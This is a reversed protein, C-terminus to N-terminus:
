IHILSLTVADITARHLMDYYDPSEYFSLDLRIAQRHVLDKVHDQVIESQATQVWSAISKLAAAVVFVTAIAALYFLMNSFSEPDSSDSTAASLSDVLAKTLFVTAIPLLGQVIILIAWLTTWGSAATWVLKIARPINAVQRALLAYKDTM